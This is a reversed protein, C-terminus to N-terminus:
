NARFSEDNTIVQNLSQGNMSRVHILLPRRKIEAPITYRLNKVSRSPVCESLQETYEMVPLLSIVSGGDYLDIVKQFRLCDNPVVLELDVATEAAHYHIDNVKAYFLNDRNSVPAPAINLTTEIVSSKGIYKLKYTGMDQRGIKVVTAFPITVMPCATFINFAREAYARVIIEQNKVKVDVDALSHCTDPLIGLITVETADNDDFNAPVFVDSVDIAVRNWNGQSYAFGSIVFGCVLLTKVSLKFM